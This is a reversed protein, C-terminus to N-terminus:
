KAGKKKRFNAIIPILLLLLAWQSYKMLAQGMTFFLSGGIAERAASDNAHQAFAGGGLAYKASVALGGLAAYLAVALGGLAVVGIAMGGIAAVGVAVGAISIVGLSAGGVAVGGLAVGGLSLLIGVSIDGIAIWGLAKGREWKGDKMRSTAIHVLPIGLLEAKSRYNM